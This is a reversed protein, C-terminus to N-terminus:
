IPSASLENAGVPASRRSHKLANVLKEPRVPKSIYDDMGAALYKEDDGTLAHATMAIIYPREELPMQEIIRQTAELGDMEPMQIDMLVVDYAQRQLAELVEVGNAAVDARYGLRTLMLLAVKQNVANDEALLIRLPLQQAMGSDFGSTVQAQQPVPIEQRLIDVLIKHLHSQKVPKTLMAAFNLEKADAANNTLSSLMVLPLRAGHRHQRLHAALVLGDMEPMQRDLIALDFTQGAALLELAAAGSNVPVPTMQWSNLQRVLIDLSTPHDDVLLVRKNALSAVELQTATSQVPAAEAQITFHFTSGVGVESEVWMKGGMLEALRRSIALGLGTGGYRRTMSTDVQSFSEFLRTIGEPSIGIGTDQVAFHLLHSGDDDLPQSDVSVVIEGQSTFKVANAVLNTLIQRLRSPDGVIAAPTNPAIAYTLELGKQEAQAVFLDLTEEIRPVLDFAIMELDLKDSEIKSFDLIDNILTLLSDGSSRITETFDRQENVLPTDLLLSTMGIIANLPTRIEHSMNALFEAKARAVAEARKKAAGLEDTLRRLNEAMQDFAVAVLGLEDRSQYNVRTDLKGRGIAEAADKLHLLPRVVTSNFTVGLFFLFFAMGLVTAGTIAIAQTARRTGIERSEQFEQVELAIANDVLTLFSRGIEDLDAVAEAAEPGGLQMDMLEYASWLMLGSIDSMQKAVSAEHADVAGERYSVIARDLEAVAEEFEQMDQEYTESDSAAGEEAVHLLTFSLAEEMVRGGAVKIEGLGIVEPATADTIRVFDERVQIATRISLISAITMIGVVALSVLQLKRRLSM